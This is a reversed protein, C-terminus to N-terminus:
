QDPVAGRCAAGTYTVPNIANALNNANNIAGSNPPVVGGFYNVVVDDTPARSFTAPINNIYGGRRDDYIVVRAALRDEILPVNLTADM